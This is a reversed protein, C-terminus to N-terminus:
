VVDEDDPFENKAKSPFPTVTANKVTLNKWIAIVEATPLRDWDRGDATKDALLWLRGSYANGNVTTNVVDCQNPKKPDIKYRRVGKHDREMSLLWHGVQQLTPQRQGQDRIMQSLEHATAILNFPAGDRIGDRADEILANLAIQQPPLSMQELETKDDSSPAVGGVLNKRAADPLRYALLYAASLEAGGNDFWDYLREYYAETQPKEKQRRNVVHFRRQHEELHLPHEENSFLIVAHVNPILYPHLNKKNITIEDPPAAALPKLKTSIDHATAFRTQGTEGIILLKREMMYTFDGKLGDSLNEYWNDTGVALKLPKLMSDKGVGQDSIV